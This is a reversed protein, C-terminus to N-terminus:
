RSEDDMEKEGARKISASTHRQMEPFAYGPHCATLAIVAIAIMMGDLVIFDTEDQMVASRWGHAMEAIRYACRTFITVYALLIASAFLRFRLTTMLKYGSEPLSARNRFVRAAYLGALAGFVLLTIVQWVIGAIMM